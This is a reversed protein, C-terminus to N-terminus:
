NQTDGASVNPWLNCYYCDPSPEDRNAFVGGIQGRYELVAIAERLGTTWVMWEMVGLSAVVGNLSVVSPGSEALDDSQVGYIRNDVAKQDVNMAARSLADQDLLDMCFPCRDGNGSFLVRGGYWPITGDRGTDTALDFFPIGDRCCLEVVDLRALDDDLCSFASTCDRFATTSAASSVTEPVGHVLSEPLISSVMREATAIKHAKSSADAPYAGILRNLNSTTVVDPDIFVFQRVGLYSLQQAVHSGLGGLGIIAVKSKAIREQGTAGFLAINRSYRELDM